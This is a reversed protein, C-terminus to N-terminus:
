GFLSLRSSRVLPRTCDIWGLMHVLSSVTAYLEPQSFYGDLAPSIRIEMGWNGWPEVPIGLVSPELQPPTNFKNINGIDLFSNM